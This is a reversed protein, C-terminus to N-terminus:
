CTCGAPLCLLTPENLLTLTNGNSAAGSTTAKLSAALSASDFLEKRSWEEDTVMEEASDAVVQGHVRELAAQSQSSCRLLQLEKKFEHIFTHNSRQLSEQLECLHEKHSLKGSARQLTLCKESEKLKDM